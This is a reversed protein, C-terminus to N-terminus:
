ITGYPLLCFVPNRSPGPHIQSFAMRWPIQIAIITTVTTVM